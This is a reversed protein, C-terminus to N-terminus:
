DKKTDNVKDKNDSAPSDKTADTKTEEKKDKDKDSNNDSGGGGMLRDILSLSNNAVIIGTATNGLLKGLKSAKNATFITLSIFSIAILFAIILDIVLESQILPLIYGTKM